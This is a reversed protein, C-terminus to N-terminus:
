FRSAFQVSSRVWHPEFWDAGGFPSHAAFDPAPPLYECYIESDKHAWCPSYQVCKEIEAWHCVLRGKISQWLSSM